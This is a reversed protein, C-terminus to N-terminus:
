AAAKADVLSSLSDVVEDATVIASTDNPINIGLAAHMEEDSYDATADKVVTVEYGVLHGAGEEAGTEKNM